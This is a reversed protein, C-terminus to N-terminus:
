LKIACVLLNSHNFKTSSGQAAEAAAHNHLEHDLRLEALNLREFKRTDLIIM